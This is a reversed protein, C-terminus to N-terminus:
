HRINGDMTAPVVVVKTDVKSKVFHECLYAADTLTHTAGVLILGNIRHKQCTQALTDFHQKELREQGKGLYDYGGLNRYPAFSEETITEINDEVVGEVGKVFGVLVTNKRMHQFKLLGDIINNGGPASNGLLLVAFKQEVSPNKAKAFDENLDKVLHSEWNTNAHLVEKQIIEDQIELFHTANPEGNIHMLQDHIRKEVLQTNAQYRKIATLKFVGDSLTKPIKVDQRIRGQSLASLSTTQRHLAVDKQHRNEYKEQQETAYVMSDLNPDKVMFNLANSGVGKFQIPGPSQYCDLVAWKARLAAYTKFMAGDLKVLAKTIVPKDKGKRREIGMMTPLPCGAAIWKKPDSEGLNKICSMYGSRNKFMLYAANQGIAYCYQSDFNSPLACRGEYGFFHAQPKFSGKYLGNARREELERMVTLILLRETDIKSVQVNGHPDRDLLLQSSISRPLRSFLARQAEKLNNLVYTEIDGEFDKALIENIQSILLGVEPIFEILGEPVLIVGYNKGRDARM